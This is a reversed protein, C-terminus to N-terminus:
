SHLYASPIMTASFNLGVQNKRLVDKSFGEKELEDRFQLWLEDNDDSVSSSRRQNIKTAITDVTDKISELNASSTQVIPHPKSPNHLQVTNLFMDINLQQNELKTNVLAVLDRERSGLPHQEPAGDRFDGDGDSGKAGYKELLIDLQKLAFNCDEVVSTVQRAYVPSQDTNLLSGSDEVEVKLHKLVTHVGRVTTAVNAFDVGAVRAKRYIQKAFSDVNDM